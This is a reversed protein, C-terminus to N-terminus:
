NRDHTRIGNPTTYGSNRQTQTTRRLYSGQSWGIEMGSARDTQVGATQCCNYVAPIQKNVERLVASTRHLSGIRYLQEPVQYFLCETNAGMVRVTPMVSMVGYCQVM